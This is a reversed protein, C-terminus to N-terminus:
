GPRPSAPDQVPVAEHPNLDAAGAVSSWPWPSAAARSAVVVAAALPLQVAASRGPCSLAPADTVAVAVVGADNWVAASDESNLRLTVAPQIVVIMWDVPLGAQAAALVISLGM